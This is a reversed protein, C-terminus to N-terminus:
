KESPKGNSSSPDGTLHHVVSVNEHLKKMVKTNNIESSMGSTSPVSSNTTSNNPLQRKAPRIKKQWKSKSLEPKSNKRDSKQQCRTVDTQKPVEATAVTHDSHIGTQSNYVTQKSSVSKDKPLSNKSSRNTIISGDMNDKKKRIESFGDVLSPRAISVPMKPVVFEDVDTSGSLQFDLQGSIDQNNVNLTLVDDIQVQLFDRALLFNWPSSSKIEIQVFEITNSVAAISKDATDKMSEFLNRKGQFLIGLSETAKIEMAEINRHIKEAHQKISKLSAKYSHSLEGFQKEVHTKAEKLENKRNGLQQVLKAFREKENEAAMELSMYQHIPNPHKEFACNMCVAVDCTKCYIDVKSDAHKDCYVSNKEISPNTRRIM